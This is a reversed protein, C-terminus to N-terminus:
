MFSFMCSNIQSVKLGAVEGQLKQNEETAKSLTSQYYNYDIGQSVVYM